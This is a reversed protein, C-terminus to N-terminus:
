NVDRNLFRGAAEVDQRSGVFLPCRQHLSVPKIDLIPQTGDTAAGGAREVVYAMPACEYVLRLKGAKKASKYDRPYMFIGGYLLTRHIDAVMSGIYRLSYPRGSKRDREKLHRVYDQVALDWYPANGENVSYHSGRAPIRIDQHSRLFEGVSPDLTFGDVSADTALVMMTSSGYVIYGAAVQERGPRLFDMKKGRKGKSIKKRVSFITGVSVNVDINSSGDLPDFAVVYSGIRHGREVPVVDEDEESAMACVNGSHMVLHLLVQNALDDLKQVTEGQVNVDGTVGLIDILGARNVEASIIKGALAIHNLLSSLEGTAGPFQKQTEYIHRTITVSELDM